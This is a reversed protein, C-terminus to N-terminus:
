PGLCGIPIVHVGDERLGGAGTSTIVGLCSPEGHRSTDINAAFRLLAAAAEDVADPSLKVEFAAWRGSGATVVADIENGNSDRWADVRADLLQAYVRLDRIVLAEYHLGLVNLDSSLERTGVGLAAPGLSPDVFYRVPATRLRARSRMHPRWAQSNEILHLRELANVYASLTEKAIPGAEGGVDKALEAAKTAQGVSRGLSELLRRLNGPDRRSGLKQIDVEVINALYDRLWRRASTEDADILGPWGGIVIRDLLEDFSIHTGLGTQREGDLLKALSMEGNSHGSEFLSMPRMSMVSFRGSGSHRAADDSPTASGTLIFVGKGDRDDVERRVKNWIAPEVQWEDFLIPVPNGFLREPALKVFSRATEDEDLRFVTEAHQTATATKGCAKPGEILVAGIYGLRADLERDAIRSRYTAM